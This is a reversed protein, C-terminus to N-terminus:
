NFIYRLGIQMQYRSSRIRGTDIFDNDWPEQGELIESNVTFEPVNTGEQFGEFNLLPFNGFSGASYIRGWDHRGFWSGVLNGLNFIDLSLQLTHRKGRATTIYFDQLIRADLMNVFPNRASNIDAYDGRQDNLDDNDSIFQNLVAWQQEASVGDDNAVLNIESQNNPVYIRYGDSFAGDNIMGGFGSTNYTYTFPNGSQGNYFLSLTTGMFGAYEFRYAVQAVVRHGVAFQSRWIEGEANGGFVNRHGRWQSNNQSSTIDNVVFADGYSYSLNFGFGQRAPRSISAAINWSYGKNTNRGLFIGTYTDDVEDFVNFIPRNDPTGELGEVPPRLNLSQYRIFNINKSYLGEITGILGWFGLDQDIALNARFIQPLRFDEAFLDIQGAPVPNDPDIEFFLNGDDDIGKPQQNVDPNFVVRGGIRTGGINLGYNNYAGGFWVLPIRTTFIGAGGRIQTTKNNNVDWNFGIRPSFLLHPNIFSGTRAGQLPDDDFYEVGGFSANAQADELIPITEENFLRNQPVDQPFVPIDLRLGYTLKFNDKVQWEDQAYLGFQFGIFDAIAESDDGVVNDVQSYSHNYNTAPEDNLFQDVSDYEYRGFNERIFLNAVRYFENHTGITITHRNKFIQFDNTLTIVDQDLRNATSFREGGFEIEAAGDEIEVSPFPEGLPDRDDRVRTYGIKLNNSLNNGFLGNWEVATSNTTSLFFESGNQFGLDFPNSSRAELNEIDNVSHRLSLKHNENINWDLKALIFTRDLSSQNNEFTGPDYGFEDIKNILQNITGRDSDGRYRTEFNEFPQPIRDRQIEANVFFFLKNKVLPGGLRFGATQATFPDLRQREFLEDPEVVGENRQDVEDDSLPSRGALKENRYLWYVSGEFENTGSRTVANIAGGAFGGLRVDYPAVSVQFQEIADISIPVAGTQGGNTGSGALGFVDNNVAGDIYIANLRNNQGAISIEFGDSGEDISALPNLRAFDAISRTITPMENITEENIVTEQGTRNGDFIDSQNAVVEVGELQVASESLDASLRFAQGLDLYIDDYEQTEFGTYSITVKYPGGVRMGPIRYYGKLDTSNGYQSGSPLHVAQVNAGILPEGMADTIRGNIAATTSGQAALGSAMALFCGLLLLKSLLTALKM